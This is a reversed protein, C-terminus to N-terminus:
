TVCKMTPMTLSLRHQWTHHLAFFVSAFETQKSMYGTKLEIWWRQVTRLRCAPNWCMVTWQQNGKLTFGCREPFETDENSPCVCVSVPSNTQWLEGKHLVPATHEPYQPKFGLCIDEEISKMWVSFKWWAFVEVHKDAWRPSVKMVLENSINEQKKRISVM